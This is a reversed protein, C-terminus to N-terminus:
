FSRITTFRLVRCVGFNMYNVEFIQFVTISIAKELVIISSMFADYGTGMLLHASTEESDDLM